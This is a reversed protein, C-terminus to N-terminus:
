NPNNLAIKLADEFALPIHLPKRKSTTEKIKQFHNQVNLSPPLKLIWEEKLKIFNSVIGLYYKTSTSADEQVLLGNVVVRRHYGSITEEFISFLLFNYKRIGEKGYEKFRKENPNTIIFFLVISIVIVWIKKIKPM